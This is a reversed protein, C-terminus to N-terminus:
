VIRRKTKKRPRKWVRKKPKVSIRDATIPAYKPKKDLRGAEWLSWMLRAQMLETEDLEVTERTQTDM